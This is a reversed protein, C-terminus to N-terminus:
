YRTSEYKRIPVCPSEIYEGNVKLVMNVNKRNYHDLIDFEAPTLYGRLAGCYVLSQASKSPQVKMPFDCDWRFQTLDCNKAFLTNLPLFSFLIIWVYSKM